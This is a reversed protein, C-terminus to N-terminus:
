RAEAEGTAEPRRQVTPRIRAIRVGLRRLLAESKLVSVRTRVLVASAAIGAVEEWAARQPGAHMEASPSGDAKTPPEFPAELAPEFHPMSWHVTAGTRSLRRLADTLPKEHAVESPAPAVIHVVSARPKQRTIQVLAEVLAFGADHREPEARAPSEIGYAALYRRLSRERASRAEPAAPSFPARPRLAAARSALRDLDGRRLDSLGRADLPRLHELVRMAVDAEDLESRSADHTGTSTILAHALKSGHSPGQDPLIWTRLKAAYIALGVRDGRALYRTCIGAAEDIALDLPARGLPGAWLEVSADILVWVVDREERELDRVLLVGRRASSKWAIRRFPDGPVHERLERLDSGDGRSRGPRGAAASLRSRGGRPATLYPAFPKPLVEVGFPNAFTLPVEFLGPAGHVELALGHLGHQGVRPARVLVRVKLRGSAVVEGATPEITIELQSSAIPRLKIYRAALTDRNRVEAEIEIVVDRTARVVRRPGSWLMEFGAARIRAVSILTVARALAIAFLIAGGWGVIAPERAVLGIGAVSLAAISLHAATRSPFLQM